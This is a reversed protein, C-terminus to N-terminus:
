CFATQLFDKAIPHSTVSTRNTVNIWSAYTQSLVHHGSFEVADLPEQPLVPLWLKHGLSLLILLAVIEPLASDPITQCHQTHVDSSYQEKQTTLIHALTLCLKKAGHRFVMPSKSVTDQNRQIKRSRQRSEKNKKVPSGHSFLSICCLPFTVRRTFCLTTWM